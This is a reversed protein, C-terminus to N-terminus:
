KKNINNKLFKNEVLEVTFPLLFFLLPNKLLKNIITIEGDVSQLANSQYIDIDSILTKNENPYIKLKTIQANYLILNNRISNDILASYHELYPPVLELKDFISKKDIINIKQLELIAQNQQITWKCKLLAERYSKRYSIWYKFAYASIGLFFSLFSNLPKSLFSIINSYGMNFIFILILILIILKWLLIIM